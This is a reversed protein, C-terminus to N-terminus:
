NGNAIMLYTEFMEAQESISKLNVFNGMLFDKTQIFLGPKFQIDIDNDIEVKKIIVSGKEQIHLDELPRFILRNNTTLVDVGWRGPAIWNAQYSFLKNDKTKGAGCFIAHKHWNLEGEAFCRIEAPAGGLYFALDIVHSSNGLLWNEKIGEKKKLPEITHSWETFEFNFSSIGGDKEIIEKAKIVSSYFRRNYAVFLDVNLKKALSSVKNIDSLSLGAPKEVLIKKIGFNMLLIQSEVLQEAGVAIIASDFVTTNSKLFDHLGGTIVNKQTSQEFTKASDVSRGVVTVNCDLASLVKFYDISMQSAGVLLINKDINNSM